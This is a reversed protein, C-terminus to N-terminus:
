DSIERRVRDAPTDYIGECVLHDFLERQLLRRGHHLRSRVTELNLGAIDAIERYSFREVLSLTVVLRFDHPLNFIAKMVLNQSIGPFAICGSDDIPSQNAWLPRVSNKDNEDAANLAASPDPSTCPRNIILSVMIGFLWVRRDRTFQCEHWSHYARAFSERVLNQADSENNLMYLAMRYLSELQSLARAEFEKRKTQGHEM